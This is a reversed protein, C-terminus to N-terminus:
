DVPTKVTFDMHQNSGKLPYEILGGSDEILLSELLYENNGWLVHGPKPSPEPILPFHNQNFKFYYYDGWAKFTCTWTIPMNQSAETILKGNQTLTQRSATFVEDRGDHNYDRYAILNYNTTFIVTDNDIFYAPGLYATCRRSAVKRKSDFEYDDILYCDWKDDEIRVSILTRLISESKNTISRQVFRLSTNTVVNRSRLIDMNLQFEKGKGSEFTIYKEDSPVIQELGEAPLWVGNQVNARAYTQACILCAVVLLLIQKM